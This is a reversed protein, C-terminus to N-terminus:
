PGADGAQRELAGPLGRAWASIDGAGLCLVMDGPGAKRLVMAALAEPTELESVDPHGHARIGGALESRTAGAIPSEGAPYVDAVIVADAQDFSREFERRLAALRTFRHPQHVAVLRGSAVERAAALTARIEAPHHGYDDVVEIGCGSGVRTFRRGVGKFGGIAARIAEPDAGVEVGVAVAALANRVNHVGPLPLHLGAIGRGGERFEVSFSMGGREARIDVGRVAAGSALGYGIARRGELSEALARARPDDLCCIAAGYFPIGHAFHRFADEVEEIGAYHDVHELDINTVVGLTAPLHLFSGDSEDAEVVMWEGDGLRATSGYGEIVGGNIVTPACGAADLVAGVLSTTTTKGHSGAVAVNRKRRMLEALMQARRVVPLRRARAAALEVNDPRVASSVVVAGADALNDPRHGAAVPVGLARLERVREGESRDSGQVRYGLTHLVRAIGSMGIGGIGVFHVPGIEDPRLIV